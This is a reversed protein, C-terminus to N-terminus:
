STRLNNMKESLQTDAAAQIFGHSDRLLGSATGAVYLAPLEAHHKLEAAFVTDAHGYSEILAHGAYMEISRVIEANALASVLSAIMGFGGIVLVRSISYKNM